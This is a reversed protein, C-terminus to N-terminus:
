SDRGGKYKHYAVLAEIYGFLDKFKIIDININDIKQIINSKEIFDKVPREREKDRGAQYLLRIKLYQLESVIDEPLTSVNPNNAEFALVKNNIKNLGSLFKRIKSTTLVINGSNRKRVLSNITNEAEKVLKANM